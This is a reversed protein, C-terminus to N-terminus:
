ASWGFGVVIRAILSLDALDPRTLIAAEPNYRIM